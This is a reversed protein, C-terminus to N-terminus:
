LIKALDNLSFTKVMMTKEDVNIVNNHDSVRSPYQPKVSEM